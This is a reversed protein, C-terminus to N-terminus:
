KTGEQKLPRIVIETCGWLILTEIKKPLNDQPERINTIREGDARTWEMDVMKRM